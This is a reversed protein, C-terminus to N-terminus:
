SSARGRGGAASPYSALRRPDDGSAVTLMGWLGGGDTRGIRPARQHGFPLLARLPGSQCGAPARPGM